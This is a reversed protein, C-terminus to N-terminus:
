VPSHEFCYFWLTQSSLFLRPRQYSVLGKQSFCCYLLGFCTCVHQLRLVFLDWFTCVAKLSVCHVSVTWHSNAYSFVKCGWDTQLNKLLDFGFTIGIWVLSQLVAEEVHSALGCYDPRLKNEERLRDIFHKEETSINYTWKIDFHDDKFFLHVQKHQAQTM